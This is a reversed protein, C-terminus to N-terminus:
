NYNPQIFAVEAASIVKFTIKGDMEYEELISKVERIGEAHVEKGSYLGITAISGIHYITMDYDCYTEDSGDALTEQEQQYVIVGLKPKSEDVARPIIIGSATRQETEITAILFRGKPMIWDKNVRLAANIDLALNKGITLSFFTEWNKM